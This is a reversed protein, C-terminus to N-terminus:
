KSVSFGAILTHESKYFVVVKVLSNKHQCLCIATFNISNLRFKFFFIRSIINQLSESNEDSSLEMKDNCHDIEATKDMPHLNCHM